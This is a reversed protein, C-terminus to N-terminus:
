GRTYAGINPMLRIPAGDTERRMAKTLYEQANGKLVDYRSPDVLAKPLELFVRTSLEFIVADQWRQPVEIVASYAGVDAIQRHVYCVLHRQANGPAQWLVVNTADVRKDLWYTNPDDSLQTKSSLNAYDDRNLLGIPVENAGSLFSAASFVMSGAVDRVRWYLTPAVNDSDIAVRDGASFAGTVSGQPAWTSGDASNELVLQLAAAATKLTVEATGFAQVTGDSYTAKGTQLSTADLFTANRRLVNMVEVTGDALAYRPQGVVMPLVQKEVCWLEMGELVFSSLIMGLNEKASLLGESTLLAPAVGCRRVAHEIYKIAPLRSQGVTM